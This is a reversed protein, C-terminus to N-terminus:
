FDIYAATGGLVAAALTGDLEVPRYASVRTLTITDAQVDTDTLAVGSDINSVLQNWPRDSGEKTALSVGSLWVKRNNDVHIIEFGCAIGDRLEDVLANLETSPNSFRMILNQTYAGTTTFTGESTFQVSNLDAKVRKFVDIAATLTSIKGSTEALATVSGSPAIFVIRSNGAINKGCTPLYNALAM